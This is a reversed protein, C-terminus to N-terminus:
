AYINYFFMAKQEHAKLGLWYVGCVGNILICIFEYGFGIMEAFLFDENTPTSIILGSGEKLRKSQLM